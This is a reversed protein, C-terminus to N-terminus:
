LPLEDAEIRLDEVRVIPWGTIVTKYYDLWAQRQSVLTKFNRLPLKERNCWILALNHDALIHPWCFIHQYNRHDCKVFHAPTLFCQVAAQYEFWIGAAQIVLRFYPSFHLRAFIQLINLHQPQNHIPGRRFKIKMVWDTRFMLFLYVVIM